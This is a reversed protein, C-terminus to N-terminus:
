ENLYFVTQQCFTINYITVRLFAHRDVSISSSLPLPKAGSVINACSSLAVNWGLYLVIKEDNSEGSDVRSTSTDGKTPSNQQSGDGPQIIVSYRGCFFLCFLVFIFMFVSVSYENMNILATDQYNLHFFTEWTNKWRLMLHRGRKLVTLSFRIHGDNVLFYCFNRNFIMIIVKSATCHFAFFCCCGYWFPLVFDLNSMSLMSKLWLKYNNSPPRQLLFASSSPCDLPNLYGKASGKTLQGIIKKVDDAYCLFSHNIFHSRDGRM